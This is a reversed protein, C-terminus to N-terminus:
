SRKTKNLLQNLRIDQELLTRTATDDAGHLQDAIKLKETKVYQDILRAQQRQADSQLDVAEIGQYLEEYAVSLIKAYEAVPQLEAVQDPNKGDFDPHTKLFGFLTRAQDQYL